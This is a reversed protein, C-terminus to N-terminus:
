ISVRIYVDRYIHIYISTRETHKHTDRNTGSAQYFEISIILVEQVGRAHAHTNTNTNTDKHAHEM